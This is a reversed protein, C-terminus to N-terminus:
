LWAKKAGIEGPSVTCRIRLWEKVVEIAMIETNELGHNSSVFSGAFPVKM